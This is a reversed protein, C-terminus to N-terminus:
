PRTPRPLPPPCRGSYRQWRRDRSVGRRDTARGHGAPAFTQGRVAGRGSRRSLGRAAAARAHRDPGVVVGGRQLRIPGHDASHRLSPPHRAEDVAHLRIAPARSLDDPFQMAPLHLLGRSPGFGVKRGLSDPKLRVARWATHPLCRSCVGHAARLAGLPSDTRFAQIRPGLRRPQVPSRKAADSLPTPVPTNDSIAHATACAFKQQRKVLKGRFLYYLNHLICHEYSFKMGNNNSHTAISAAHHFRHRINQHYAIYLGCNQIFSSPAQRM